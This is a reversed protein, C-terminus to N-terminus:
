MGLSFCNIHVQSYLPVHKDGDILVILMLLLLQCLKNIKIFNVLQQSSIEVKIHSPAFLYM